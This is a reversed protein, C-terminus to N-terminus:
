SSMYSSPPGTTQGRVFCSCVVACNSIQGWGEGQGLFYLINMSQSTLTHRLSPIGGGGAKASYDSRQSPAM